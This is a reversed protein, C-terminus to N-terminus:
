TKQKTNLIEKGNRKKRRREVIAVFEAWTKDRELQTANMRENHIKIIKRNM